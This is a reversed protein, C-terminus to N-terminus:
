EQKPPNKKLNKIQEDIKRQADENKIQDQKIAELDANLLAEMKRSENYFGQNALIVHTFPFFGKSPDTGKLHVIMTTGLFPVTEGESMVIFIDQRAHESGKFIMLAMSAAEYAQTEKEFSANYETMPVDVHWNMGHVTWVPLEEIKEIIDVASM